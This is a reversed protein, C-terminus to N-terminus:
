LKTEIWNIIKDIEIGNEDHEFFRTNVINKMADLVSCYFHNDKYNIHIMKYRPYKKHKIILNNNNYFYFDIHKSLHKSLQKLRM